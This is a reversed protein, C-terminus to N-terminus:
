FIANKANVWLAYLWTESCASTPEQIATQPLRSCDLSIFCSIGMKYVVQAVGSIIGYASDSAVITQWYSNRVMKLFTLNMVKKTLIYPKHDLSTISVLIKMFHGIPGRHSDNIFHM